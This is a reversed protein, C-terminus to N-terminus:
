NVKKSTFFSIIKAWSSTIKQLIKFPKENPEKITNETIIQTKNIPQQEKIKDDYVTRTVEFVKPRLNIESEKETGYIRKELEGEGKEFPQIWINEGNVRRYHGRVSWKEIHRGYERTPETKDKKIIPKYIKTDNINVYGNYKYISTIQKGVGNELLQTKPIGTIEKAKNKAFYYMTAYSFYVGQEAMYNCIKLYVKELEKELLNKRSKLQRAKKHKLSSSLQSVTKDIERKIQESMFINKQSEFAKKNFWKIKIKIDEMALNDERSFFYRCIEKQTDYDYLSFEPYDPNNFNFAVTFKKNSENFVNETILMGTKSFFSNENVYWDMFDRTVGEENNTCFDKMRTIDDYTVVITKNIDEM